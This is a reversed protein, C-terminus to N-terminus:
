ADIGSKRHMAKLMQRIVPESTVERTGDDYLHTLTGVHGKSKTKEVARFHVHELGSDKVIELVNHPRVGGGALLEIRGAARQKLRRLAEKGEVATPAGGSTLVTSVGLDILQDLSRDLDTTLDFAKHFTVPRTGCADMISRTTPMDISGDQSLAGIVFGLDIEKDASAEHIAQIDNIMAEVEAPSYVFDGGRQRVLIRISMRQVEQLAVNITGISPTTGGSSIDGCFEIRDAGAREAIRAGAIDDVCVELLKM